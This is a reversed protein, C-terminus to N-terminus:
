RLSPDIDQERIMKRGYETDPKESEQFITHGQAFEYVPYPKDRDDHLDVLRGITTRKFTVTQNFM